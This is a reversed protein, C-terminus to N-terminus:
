PSDGEGANAGRSTKNLTLRELVTKSDKVTALGNEDITLSEVGGDGSQGDKGLM